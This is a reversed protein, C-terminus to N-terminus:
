PAIRPAARRRVPAAKDLQHRLRRGARDLATRHDTADARAVQVRRRAAHLRLEVTATGHAAGFVAQGDLPRGARKAARELVLRARARLGPPIDCHRTATITIRM